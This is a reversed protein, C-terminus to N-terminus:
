PTPMMGAAVHGADGAAARPDSADPARDRTVSHQPGQRNAAEADVSYDYDNLLGIAESEDKRNLLINNLSL